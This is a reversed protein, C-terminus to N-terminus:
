EKEILAVGNGGGFMKLFLFIFSALHPLEHRYDKCPLSLCAPCLNLALRLQM